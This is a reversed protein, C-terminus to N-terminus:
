TPKRPNLSTWLKESNCWLSINRETLSINSSFTHKGSVIEILSSDRIKKKKIYEKM